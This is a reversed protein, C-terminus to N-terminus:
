APIEWKASMIQAPQPSTRTFYESIPKSKSGSTARAAHQPGATIYAGCLHAAPPVFHRRLSVTSGHVGLSSLQNLSTNMRSGTDATEVPRDCMPDGPVVEPASGGGRTPLHGAPRPSCGEGRDQDIEGSDDDLDLASSGAAPGHFRTPPICPTARLSAYPAAAQTAQYAIPGRSHGFGESAQALGPRATPM